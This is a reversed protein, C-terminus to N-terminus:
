SNQQNWCGGTSAECEAVKFHLLKVDLVFQQTFNGKKLVFLSPTALRHASKVTHFIELLAQFSRLAICCQIIASKDCIWKIFVSHWSKTLYCQGDQFIPWDVNQLLIMNLVDDGSENSLVPPQTGDKAEEVDNRQCNSLKIAAFLRLSAVYPVMFVFGRLKLWTFKLCFIFVRLITYMRHNAAGNVDRNGLLSLVVWSTLHRNNEEKSETEKEVNKRYTYITGGYCKSIVVDVRCLLNSQPGLKFCGINPGDNANIILKLIVEFFAFVQIM